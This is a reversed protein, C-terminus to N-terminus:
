KSGKERSSLEILMLKSPHFSILQEKGRSTKISLGELFVKTKKVDVRAIKAEKKKQNGRMVRVKDGKKARMSRKKKAEKLQKSLHITLLKQKKHLPLNYLAKRKKRPQKTEKDEFKM